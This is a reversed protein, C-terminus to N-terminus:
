GVPEVNMAVTEDDSVEYRVLQGVELTKDKFFAPSVFVQSKISPPMQAKIEPGASTLPQIFAGSDPSSFIVKGFKVKIAVPHEM